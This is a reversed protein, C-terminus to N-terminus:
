QGQAGQQDQDTLRITWDRADGTDVEFFGARKFGRSECDEVDRIEFAKEGTCMYNNGVWAGGVDYDIAHVYLFRSPMQGKLLTECSQAPVNWWGETAWGSSDRYGLSVGIRSATANCLKLDALAAQAPAGTILLVALTTM